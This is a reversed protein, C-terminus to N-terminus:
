KKDVSSAISAAAESVGQVAGKINDAKKMQMENLKDNLTSKTTLYQSEVADKRENASAAINSMTDALGSNAQAKSAAVSETTGGMVAQAGAAARNRNRISEETMTILRQADARQTADENYRQDYWAQNEAQRERLNSQVKRIARGSAIGGAITAGIKMASGVATGGNGKFISFLGM